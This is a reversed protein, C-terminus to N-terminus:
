SPELWRRGVGPWGSRIAARCSSPSSTLWWRPRCWTRGAAAPLHGTATPSQRSTGIWRSFPPEWTPLICSCSTGAAASRKTLLACARSRLGPGRLAAQEVRSLAQCIVMYGGDGGRRELFRGAATNEGIPAVVELFQSGVALICNELGFASVAPDVHCVPISFVQSLAETVPELRAAVLCVQRLYIAM